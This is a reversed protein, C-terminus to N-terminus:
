GVELLGPRILFPFIFSVKFEKMISTSYTGRSAPPSQILPRGPPTQGYCVVLSPPFSSSPFSLFTLLLLLYRSDRCLHQLLTLHVMSWSMQERPACISHFLSLFALLVKAPLIGQKAKIVKGGVWTLTTILCCCCCCRVKM